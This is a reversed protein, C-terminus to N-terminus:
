NSNKWSGIFLINETTNYVCYADVDKTGVSSSDFYVSGEKRNIRIDNYESEQKDPFSVAYYDRGQEDFYRVVIIEDPSIGSIYTDNVYMGIIDGYVVLCHQNDDDYSITVNEANLINKFSEERQIKREEMVKLNEEKEAKKELYKTGILTSIFVGVFFIRKLANRFIEKKESM